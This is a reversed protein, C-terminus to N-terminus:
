AKNFRSLLGLMYGGDAVIRQGTIWRAADSLLFLIIDAVDSPMGIGHLYFSEYQRVAEEEKGLDKQFTQDFVRTRVLAPAVCNSRLGKAAQEVALVKSYAELAAKGAAYLSGGPYPHESSFSSLFVVSAHEALKKKRLLAGNLLVPAKFNVAFLEDIKNESIYKVPFSEVTGACHAVGNLMPCAEALALVEAESRLDAVLMQHGDGTLMDMTEQLRQEDRGSLILQAGGASAAIATQRGIGGSAGTVLVKKGTLSFRDTHMNDPMTNM